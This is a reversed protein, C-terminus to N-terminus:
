DVKFKITTAMKASSKSIILIQKSSLQIAGAEYARRRVAENTLDYHPHGKRVGEFYSRKLGIRTAFEHLEELNESVLHVGDTFVSM